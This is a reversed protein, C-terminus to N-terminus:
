FGVVARRRFIERRFPNILDTLCQATFGKINRFPKFGAYKDCVDSLIIKRKTLFFNLHESYFITTILVTPSLSLRPGLQSGPISHRTCDQESMVGRSVVGRRRWM